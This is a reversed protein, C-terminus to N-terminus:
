DPIVTHKPAPMPTDGKAERWLILNLAQTDVADAHSFDMKMSAEAGAAKASNVQYLLGNDRNRYNATFPPQDGNGTFLPSMIPAVADNNNMPPLGLLTEMTHIVNVTTYFEHHVVPEPARPAYKSIVLAISRHADV